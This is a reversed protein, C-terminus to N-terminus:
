PLDTGISFNCVSHKGPLARQSCSFVVHSIYGTGTIPIAYATVYKYGPMMPGSYGLSSFDTVSGQTVGGLDIIRAGADAIIAAFDSYREPPTTKHFTLYTRWANGGIGTNLGLTVRINLDSPQDIFRVYGATSDNRYYCCSMDSTRGTSDSNWLANYLDALACTISVPNHLQAWGYEAQAPLINRDAPGGVFTKGKMVPGNLSVEVKKASPRLPSHNKVIRFNLDDANSFSRIDRVINSGIKGIERADNIIERVAAM